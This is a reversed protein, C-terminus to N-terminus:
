SEAPVKLGAQKGGFHFLNGFWKRLTLKKFVWRSLVYSMVTTMLFVVMIKVIAPGQPWIMLMDQFISVVIAHILYIYYSHESVTHILRSPRNFYKMAFSSLTVLASFLFFSRIFAFLLLYAPSLSTTTAPNLFVNQGVVIFAAALVVTIPAWVSLRGLANGNIFWNRSSGYIGLGFYAIYLFIKAPQFQLFLNVTLWSTDPVLLLSIFYGVTTVLGFIMLILLMSKNSPSAPKTTNSSIGFLKDKVKWFFIFVLFFSFLLSVFWFHMHVMQSTNTAIGLHTQGITRIWTLWSGIFGTSSGSSKIVIAWWLIPLIVIVVLLWIYGLEWFKSKFFSRYGRKRLSSLTFYGALFFFIPMIFVDVLERIGTAIVSSGDHVSWYPTNTSYAAASHYIVVGLLAAVRVFDLALLRGQTQQQNTSM